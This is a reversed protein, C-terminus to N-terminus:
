KQTGIGCGHVSTRWGWGKESQRVSALMRPQLGTIRAVSREVHASMAVTLPRLTSSMALRLGPM